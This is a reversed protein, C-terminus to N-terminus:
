PNGSEHSHCIVHNDNGHFRSDMILVFSRETAVKSPYCSVMAPRVDSVLHSM